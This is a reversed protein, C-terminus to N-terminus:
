DQAPAPGFGAESDVGALRAAARTLPTDIGAAKAIAREHDLLRQQRSCEDDYLRALSERIHSAISKLSRPRAVLSYIKSRQCDDILGAVHAYPDSRESKKARSVLATAWVSAEAIHLEATRMSTKRIFKSLRHMRM